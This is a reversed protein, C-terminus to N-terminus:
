HGAGPCPRCVPAVVAGSRSCAAAGTPARRCRRALGAGFLGAAFMALSAPEPVPEAVVLTVRALDISAQASTTDDGLFISGPLSYLPFSSLRYDRLSGSLVPVADALLTYMGGLFALEFDILGGAVPNFAANADAPPDGFLPTDNQAFVRGDQFGIEISRGPDAGIVIVSFGARVSSGSHSEGLIDVSFNLSYGLTDDLAVPSIAGFGAQFLNTPTTDLRTVGGGAFPPPSFGAFAMATQPTVTRM